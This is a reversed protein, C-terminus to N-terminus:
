PQTERRPYTSTVTATPQGGPQTSELRQIQEASTEVLSTLRETANVAGITAEGRMGVAGDGGDLGESINSVTAVPALYSELEITATVAKALYKPTRQKVGFAVQPKTLQTLYVQLTLTERAQDELETYVKDTILRVADAFDAWSEDKKRLRLQAQYRSKRSPLEFQLGLAKTAETFSDRTAAPLHKYATQARGTM